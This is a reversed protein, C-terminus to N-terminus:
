TSANAQGQQNNQTNQSSQGQTDNSAIALTDRLNQVQEGATKKLDELKKEETEVAKATTQATKLQAPITNAATSNVVNSTDVPVTDNQAQQTTTGTAQDDEFLSSYAKIVSERFIGYAGDCDKLLEATCSM